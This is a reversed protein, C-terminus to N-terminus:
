RSLAGARSDDHQERDHKDHRKHDGAHLGTPLSHSLLTIAQEGHQQWHVTFATGEPYGARQCTLALTLTKDVLQTVRASDFGMWAQVQPFLAKFLSEKASFV